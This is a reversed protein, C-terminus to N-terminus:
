SKFEVVYFIFGIEMFPLKSKIVVLYNILISKV